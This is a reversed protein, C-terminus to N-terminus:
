VDTTANALEGHVIYRFTSTLPLWHVCHNHPRAKICRDIEKRQAGSLCGTVMELLRQMSLSMDKAFYSLIKPLFIKTGKHLYLSAQIFEQKAVKLNQFVNKATYLRVQILYGSRDHIM